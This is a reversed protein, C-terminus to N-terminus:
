RQLGRVQSGLFVNGRHVDNDVPTHRLLHRSSLMLLYHTHGTWSLIIKLQLCPFYFSKGESLFSATATDHLVVGDNLKVSNRVQLMRMLYRVGEQICQIFIFDSSDSSCKIITYTFFFKIRKITHYRLSHTRIKRLGSNESIFPTVTCTCCLEVDGISANWCSLAWCLSCRDHLLLCSHPQWFLSM